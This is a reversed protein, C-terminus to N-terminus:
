LRPTILRHWFRLLHEFFSPMPSVDITIEQALSLNSPLHDRGPTLSPTGSEDRVFFRLQGAHPEKFSITRSYRGDGAVKDGLTGDDVLTWRHEIVKDQLRYQYLALSPPRDRTTAVRATFVIMQDQWRYLISPTADVSLIAKPNVAMAAHPAGHLSFLLSAVMASLRCNM